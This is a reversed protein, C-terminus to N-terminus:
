TTARSLGSMTKLVVAVRRDGWALTILTGLLALGAGM